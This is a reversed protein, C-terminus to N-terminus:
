AGINRAICQTCANNCPTHTMAASTGHPDDKRTGIFISKAGYKQIVTELCETFSGSVRHITVNYQEAVEDLFSLVEPFEDETEFYM